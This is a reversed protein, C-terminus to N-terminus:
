IKDCPEGAISKFTTVGGLAAFALPHLSFIEPRWDRTHRRWTESKDTVFCTMSRPATV